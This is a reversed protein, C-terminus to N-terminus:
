KRSEEAASRTDAWAQRSSGIGSEASAIRPNPPFLVLKIPLFLPQPM